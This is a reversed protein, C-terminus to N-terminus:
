PKPIPMPMMNGFLTPMNTLPRLGEPDSSVKTQTIKTLTRKMALLAPDEPGDFQGITVLSASRTHLVFAELNLSEGNPGKM